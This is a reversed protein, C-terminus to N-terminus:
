FIYIGPIFFPLRTHTRRVFKSSAFVDPAYQHVHEYEYKCAAHHVRDRMIYVHQLTSGSSFYTTM